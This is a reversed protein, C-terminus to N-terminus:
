EAKEIKAVPLRVVFTAGNGSQSRVSITGGHAEIIEKVLSLGLGSGRIQLAQARAGRVFPKFIEAQEHAPIGPGRDAVQIEVMPPIGDEDAVATVGIWKGSGGHKAANGILNQFARRLASADGSIEPLSPPLELQVECQAAQTEHATAAVADRLVDALAVPVRLGAPNKKQAGALTLVQEIMEGLQEVHEIILGSYKEVQGRESVVGRKLNHAAGRIVTLPTRLEHSVGAVFNMQQEALQRSKRTQRALAFGAALILGNLLLAIAFSKRRSGAVLKELADPQPYVQLTWVFNPTPGGQSNLGRGQRNLRVVVPKASLDMKEASAFIKVGPMASSKIVAQNVPQGAINLHARVLEPLWIKQLYNTDLEFVVWEMEPPGGFGGPGSDGFVPIEFLVGAGSTFPGREDQELHWRFNQWTEPWAAPALTGDSLNQELLNVGDPSATVVGVHRFIPRPHLARFKQFRQQQVAARNARNVSGEAPVLAACYATLTDDFSKTFSEAGTQVGARLREAEARSIEGTWRYQLATLAACLLVLLAIFGWEAAASKPFVRMTKAATFITVAVAAPDICASM